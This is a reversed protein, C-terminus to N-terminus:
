CATGHGSFDIMKWDILSFKFPRIASCFGTGFCSETGFYSVQEPIFVNNRFM